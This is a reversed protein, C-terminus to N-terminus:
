LRVTGGGEGGGSRRETASELVARRLLLEAERDPKLDRTTVYQPCASHPCKTKGRSSRIMALIAEKSYSHNCKSCRVPNEMTKQTIPCKLSRVTGQMAIEGDEEEEDGNGAVGGEASRSFGSMNGGNKAKWLEKKYAIYRASKKPDIKKVRLVELEQVYMKELGIESNLDELVQEPPVNEDYQPKEKGREEAAKQDFATKMKEIAQSQSKLDQLLHAYKEMCKDLSELDTDEGNNNLLEVGCMETVECHRALKTEVRSLAELTSNIGSSIQFTSM